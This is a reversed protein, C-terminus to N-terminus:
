LALWEVTLVPLWAIDLWSVTSRDQIESLLLQLVATRNTSDTVDLNKKVRATTTNYLGATSLTCSCASTPLAAAWYM